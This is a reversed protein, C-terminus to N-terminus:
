KVHLQAVETIPLTIVTLMMHLLIFEQLLKHIYPSM